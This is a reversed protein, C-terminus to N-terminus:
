DDCEVDLRALAHPVELGDVVIQPVPVVDPRRHKALDSDVALADLGHHLRVLGGKKVHEVPGVATRHPGDFLPGHRLRRYRAFARRRRLWKRGLRGCEIQLANAIVIQDIVRRRQLFAGPGNRLL